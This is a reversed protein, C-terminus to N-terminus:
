YKQFKKRIRMGTEIEVDIIYTGPSLSRIYIRENGSLDTAVVRGDMALVRVQQVSVGSEPFLQVSESAPDYMLNMAPLQLGDLSRRTKVSVLSLRAPVEKKLMVDEIDVILGGGGVAYGEGGRPNDDTRYMDIYIEKLSNNFSVTAVYNQDNAFWSEETFLTEPNSIETIDFGEYAITYSVSLVDEVPNERSGHDIGLTLVDGDELVEPNMTVVVAQEEQASLSLSSLGFAILMFTYIFFRQTPNIKQILFNKEIM